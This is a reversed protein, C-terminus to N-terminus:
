LIDRTLSTMRSWKMLLERFKYFLEKSLPKTFIDAVQYKTDIPLVKVLGAKVHECFHHYKINIHKTRPHMKPVKAIELTASNDEFLKSYV